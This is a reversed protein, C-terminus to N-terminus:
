LYRGSAWGTLGRRHGVKRNYRKFAVPREMNIVEELYKRAKEVEMGRIERCIEVAHKPSIKLQTASARATRSKDEDKYAYKVKAM